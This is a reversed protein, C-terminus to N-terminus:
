RELECKGTRTKRDVWAAADAAIAFAAVPGNPGAKASLPFSSPRFTYSDPVEDLPVLHEVFFHKCFEWFGSRDIVPLPSAISALNRMEIPGTKTLGKYVFLLSNVWRITAPDGSRIRTRVEWPLFRPLGNQLRVGHGLQWTSRLPSGALYSKVAFLSNKLYMSLGLVGNANFISVLHTIIPILVRRLVRRNSVGSWLAVRSLFSQLVTVLLGSDTGPALRNDVIKLTRTWYGQYWKRLLGLVKRTRPHVTPSDGESRSTPKNEGSSSPSNQDPPLEQSPKREDLPSLVVILTKLNSVCQGKLAKYENPSLPLLLDENDPDVCVYAGLKSAKLVEEPTFGREVAIETWVQYKRLLHSTTHFSASVVKILWLGGFTPLFPAM